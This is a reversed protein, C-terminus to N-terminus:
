FWLRGRWGQIAGPGIQVFLFPTYEADQHLLGFGRGVSVGQADVGQYDAAVLLGVAVRDQVQGVEFDLVRQGAALLLAQGDLDGAAPDDAPAVVEIFGPVDVLHVKGDQGFQQKAARLRLTFQAAPGTAHFRNVVQVGNPGDEAGQDLTVEHNVESGL